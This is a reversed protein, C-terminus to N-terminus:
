HIYMTKMLKQVIHRPLYHYITTTFQKILIDNFIAKINNEIHKSLRIPVYMCSVPLM